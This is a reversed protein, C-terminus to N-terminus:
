NVTFSNTCMNKNGANNIRKVDQVHSDPLTCTTLCHMYASPATIRYYSLVIYRSVPSGAADPPPPLEPPPAAIIPTTTTRIMIMIAMMMTMM